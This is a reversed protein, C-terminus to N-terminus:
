LDSWRFEIKLEPKHRLLWTQLLNMALTDGHAFASYYDQGKSASVSPLPLPQRDPWFREIAWDSFWEARRLYKEDGSLRYAYDLLGIVRGITGADVKPTVTRGDEVFPKLDPESELYRDACLLILRRYADSQIQRHRAICYGVMTSHPVPGVYASVWGETYPKHRPPGSEGPLPQDSFGKGASFWLTTPELTRVSATLVLGKGGPGPEHKLKLFVEDIGTALERMKRALAEPVLPAADWLNIALGVNSQPRLWDPMAAYHPIAGSDPHRAAVFYDVVAGIAELMMPDRTHKYAHAWTDIYFGGHRPFEYGRRNPPDSLVQAHRSWSIMPGKHDIQYKWVAQAYRHCEAPAMQFSKDWFIWPRWFEHIAASPNDKPYGGLTENVLDWGMHEGWAFFGYKAEQCHKLFYELTRDAEQAYRTQGTVTALAYLVQLLNEDFHPNAIFKFEQSVRARYLDDIKGEPIQYTKRDLVGAWLPTHQPGFHDRGQEPDLMADAFARVVELADRKPAAPQSNDAAPAQGGVGPWASLVAALLLGSSTKM